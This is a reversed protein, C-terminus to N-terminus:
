ICLSSTSTLGEAICTKYIMKGIDRDEMVYNGFVKVPVNTFGPRMLPPSNKSNSAWGTGSDYFSTPTRDYRPTKIQIIAFVQAITITAATWM